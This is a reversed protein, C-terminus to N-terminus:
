PQFCTTTGRDDSNSISKSGSWSGLCNDIRSFCSRRRPSGIRGSRSRRVGSARCATGGIWVMEQQESFLAHYCIL